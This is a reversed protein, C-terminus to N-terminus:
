LDLEAIIPSINIYRNNATMSVASVTSTGTATMRHRWEFVDGPALTSDITRAVASSTTLWSTVLVGNKWFGLQSNNTGASGHTANFRAVGTLHTITYTQAVVDTSTSTNTLIGIVSGVGISQAFTAAASVTLVPLGQSLRALAKGLLRPAGTAGLFGGIWNRAWRKWLSSTGPAEPDTETENIVNYDTM